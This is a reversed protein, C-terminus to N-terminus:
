EAELLNIVGGRTFAARAKTTKTGCASDSFDAIHLKKKQHAGVVQSQCLLALSAIQPTANNRLLM